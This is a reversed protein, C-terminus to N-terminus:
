AAARVPLSAKRLRMVLRLGQVLTAVLALSIFSGTASAWAMLRAQRFTLQGQTVSGLLRLHTDHTQQFWSLVQNLLWVEGWMATLIGGVFGLQLMIFGWRRWSSRKQLTRFGERVPMMAALLFYFLGGIGTGPLGAVM